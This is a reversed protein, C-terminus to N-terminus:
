VFSLSLAYSTWGILWVPQGHQTLPSSLDSEEQYASSNPVAHRRNNSQNFFTCMILAVLMSAAGVVAFVIAVFAAM